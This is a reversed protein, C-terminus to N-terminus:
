KKGKLQDDHIKLVTALKNLNGQLIKLDGKDELKQIRGSYDHIKERIEKVDGLKLDIKESNMNFVHQLAVTRAELERAYRELEMTRTLLDEKLKLLGTQLTTVDSHIAKASQELIGEFVSLKTEHQTFRSLLLKAILGLAFVLAVFLVYAFAKLPSELILNFIADM